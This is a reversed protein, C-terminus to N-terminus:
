VRVPPVVVSMALGGVVGFEVGIFGLLILKTKFWVIGSEVFASQAHYM